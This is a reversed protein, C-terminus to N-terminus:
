IHILSLLMVVSASLVCLGLAFAVATDCTISGEVKVDEVAVGAAEGDTNCISASEDASLLRVSPAGCTNLEMSM